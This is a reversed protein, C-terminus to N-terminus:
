SGGGGAPPGLAAAALGLDGARLAIDVDLVSLVQGVKEYKERALRALDGAREADGEALAARARAMALLVAIDPEGPLPCISPPIPRTLCGSRSTCTTVSSPWRRRPSRRWACRRRIPRYRTVCGAPCRRRRPSTAASRRPFPWGAEPGCRWRFLNWRGHASSRRGDARERLGRGGLPVFLVTGLALWLLGLAQHESQRGASARAQEALSRCFAISGDDPRRILRLMALWLEIVLRDPASEDLAMAALDLYAVASDPDGRCLRVMALAAAVAPEARREAPLRGLAAEFEGARDPLAGALGAETLVRPVSDWEAAEAVCRVAEIVDGQRAAM